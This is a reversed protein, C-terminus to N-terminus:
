WGEAQFNYKTQGEVPWFPLEEGKTEIWGNFFDTITGVCVYEDALCADGAYLYSSDSEKQNLLLRYGLFYGIDLIEDRFGCDYKKNYKCELVWHIDSIRYDGAQFLVFGDTMSMMEMYDAPLHFDTIFQHYKKEDVAQVKGINWFPNQLFENIIENIHLPKM